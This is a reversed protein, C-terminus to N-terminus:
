FPVRTKQEAFSKDFGGESNGDQLDVYAKPTPGMQVDDFVPVTHNGREM